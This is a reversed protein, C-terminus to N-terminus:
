QDAIRVQDANSLVASTRDLPVFGLCISTFGVDKLIQIRECFTEKTPGGWVYIGAKMSLGGISKNKQPNLKCPFHNETHDQTYIVM